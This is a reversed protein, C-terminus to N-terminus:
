GTKLMGASHKQPSYREALGTKLLWQTVSQGDKDVEALSWVLGHRDGAVVVIALSSPAPHRDDQLSVSPHTLRALRRALTSRSIKSLQERAERALVLEGHRALDDAAACLAPHLRDACPYNLAQWALHIAPLAEQYM